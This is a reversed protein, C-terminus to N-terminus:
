LSYRSDRAGVSVQTKSVEVTRRTWDKSPASSSVSRFAILAPRSTSAVWSRGSPIQSPEAAQSTAAVRAQSPSISPNLDHYRLETKNEIAVVGLHQRREPRLREAVVQDPAGATVDQQQRRAPLRSRLEQQLAHGFPLLGL